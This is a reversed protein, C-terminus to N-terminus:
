VNATDNATQPSASFSALIEKEKQHFITQQCVVNKRENENMEEEDFCGIIFKKGGQSNWNTIQEDAFSFNLLKFPTQINKQYECFQIREASCILLIHLLFIIQIKLKM